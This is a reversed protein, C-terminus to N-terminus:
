RYSSCVSGTCPDGVMNGPYDYAEVAALTIAADIIGADSLHLYPSVPFTDRCAGTSCMLYKHIHHAVIDM